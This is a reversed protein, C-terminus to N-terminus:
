KVNVSIKARGIYTWEGSVIKDEVQQVTHPTDSYRNCSLEGSNIGLLIYNSPGSRVLVAQQIYQAWSPKFEIVSGDLYEDTTEIKSTTKKVTIHAPKGSREVSIIITTM